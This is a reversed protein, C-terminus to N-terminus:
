EKDDGSYEIKILERICDKVMDRYGEFTVDMTEMISNWDKVKSEVPENKIWNLFKEFCEKCLHNDSRDGKYFYSVHSRDAAAIVQGCRDCVFKVM